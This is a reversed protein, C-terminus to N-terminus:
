VYSAAKVGSADTLYATDGRHNPHYYHTVSTGATGNFNITYRQQAVINGIGPAVGLGRTLWTVTTCETHAPNFEVMCVPDLGDYVYYTSDPYITADRKLRKVKRGVADYTYSVTTSGNTCGTMRSFADYGFTRPTSAGGVSKTTRNGRADYTFGASYNTCTFTRVDRAAGGETTLSTIKAPM